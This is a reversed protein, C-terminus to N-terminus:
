EKKELLIWFTTGKSHDSEVWIKGNHFHVISKAISLGLGIGGPEINRSSESRYFREFIKEYLKEPITRGKNNVNIYIQSASMKGVSITVTSNRNGYKIANTLLNSIARRMLEIDVFLIYRNNVEIDLNIGKEQAVVSFQKILPKLLEHADVAEIKLKVLNHDLTSLFFLKDVINSLQLVEEYNSQLVRKYEQAPKPSRLAVEIEGRLVTLPTKLEHSVDVTFQNMYDISSRIRETMQNLTKILRGYEDDIDEGEIKENLNKATIENTKSIIKDIRSLSGLSLLVGGILSLLLFLPLIIIYVQTLNQLNKDILTLPFAVLIIFGDKKIFSARIENDSLSKDTFSFLGKDEKIEKPFVIGTSLINPSKFITEDNYNIQIYKNRLNLSIVEFILDYVLEEKTSYLSDPAFNILSNESEKIYHFLSNAQHNLSNDLDMLMTQKLYIHIITGLTIELLLFVTSYWIALRFRTTKLYSAISNIMSTLWGWKYFTATLKNM